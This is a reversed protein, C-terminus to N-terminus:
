VTALGMETTHKKHKQCTLAKTLANTTQELDRCSEAWVIGFQILDCIWHWKTAIHKSQKHFQLNWVMAIAGINDGKIETLRDQPFRLEESLNRLWCAKCGSESLAVYEAETSSLTIVTQKKSRWMIAGGAVLFIYGSTSKHDNCNAYAADAFSYFLNNDLTARAQYTIGYEKTGKLYRLVRKLVSIHQLSPNATYSALRSVAYSIDPWM